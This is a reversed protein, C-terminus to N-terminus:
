NRSTFLAQEEWLVVADCVAESDLVLQRKYM